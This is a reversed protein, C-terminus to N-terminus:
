RQYGLTRGWGYRAFVQKSSLFTDSPRATHQNATMGTLPGKDTVPRLRRDM